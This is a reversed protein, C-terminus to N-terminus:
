AYQRPVRLSLRTLLEYHITDVAAAVEEVAQQAGWIEVMDGTNVQEKVATVDVSIMDM